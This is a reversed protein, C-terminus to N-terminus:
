PVCRFVLMLPRNTKRALARAEDYNFMWGYKVAQRHDDQVLDQGMAPVVRLATATLMTCTLLIYKM